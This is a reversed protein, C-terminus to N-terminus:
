FAFGAGTSVGAYGRTDMSGSFKFVARGENSSASAGVAFATQGRYHAVAGAVMRGDSELVQPLGAMAMAGATGAFSAKRVDRLNFGLEAIRADTYGNASAVAADMGSQLQRLNVADTAAMADAVNHLAVPAGANAGVLTAHNTITGGNGVTPTAANSYQVAAVTSGSLNNTINAITVAQQDIAATNAAVQQNTAHLQSGNVADTSTANLAGAAVNTVRVPDSTAGVMAATNTPTSSVAAPNTNSVYVMPVNAVQMQLNTITTETQTVRADINTVSTDLNAIDTENITVRNDINAIDSENITVRGDLNAIDGENITVRGDLNAINTENTTVRGDLNAINTENTTVRGDLNAIDTENTTVRTDLDVIAAANAAVAQNTEFLQSGNVAETSTASLMGDALNGITTGAAGGLVVNAQTADTYQVALTQLEAIDATNAAVDVEIATIATTNAAVDQNTAFLQSGNVAEMSGAAVTGAAVNAIVTGGAGDLTVRTHAADDYKVAADDLVDVADLAGQVQGVTAADTAATGPAVNTIQRLNGASGVSVSGISTYTGGLGPATYDVLGARDAISGSGLAVGNAATVSADTGIAVAGTAGAATAANNGLAISDLTGASAQMGNAGLGSIVNGGIEIGGETTLTYGNAGVNCQESTTVLVGDSNLFSLTLDDGNAADALAESLELDVLGLTLGGLITEINGIVPQNVAAIVDTVESAPLSIGTCIDVFPDADQAHGVEPMFAISLTSLATSAVLFKHRRLTTCYKM